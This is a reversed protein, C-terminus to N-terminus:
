VHSASRQLKWIQLRWSRKTTCLFEIFATKLPFPLLYYTPCNATETLDRQTM